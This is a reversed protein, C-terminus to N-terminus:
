QPAIGLAKVTDINIYRSHDVPLGKSAQYVQLAGLTNGDVVGDVANLNQGAASLASEIEQLKAPTSNTACLIRCWEWKDASVTKTSTVTDYEAPIETVKESAPTVLKTTKVKAYQAPVAVVRTTAPTKLVTKRVTTYEAPIVEERTSPAKTQVKRTVIKYEASKEILCMVYGDDGAIQM